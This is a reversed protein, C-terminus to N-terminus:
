ELARDVAAEFAEISDAHLVAVGLQNLVEIDDIAKCKEWVRAPVSHFRAQLLNFLLRCAGEQRGQVMGKEMGKEMGQVMGDQFAEPSLEATINRM